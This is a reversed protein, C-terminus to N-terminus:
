TSMTYLTGIDVNTANLTVTKNSASVGGAGFASGLYIRSYFRTETSTDSAHDSVWAGETITLTANAPVDDNEKINYKGLIVYASANGTAEIAGITVDNWNCAIIYIAAGNFRLNELVTEGGLSLLTKSSITFGGRELGNDFGRITIPKSYTPLTTNDLPYTGCVVVTGGVNAIRNVAETLSAVAAAATQGNNTDSGNASLYVTPADTQEVKGNCASCTYYYKEGDYNWEYNNSVHIDSAFADGDKTMDEILKKCDFCYWTYKALTACNAPSTEIWEGDEHTCGIKAGCVDCAEDANADPHEGNVKLCYASYLQVNEAGIIKAAFADAGEVRSDSYVNLTYDNGKFGVALKSLDANGGCMVIDVDFHGTAAVASVAYFDAISDVNGDFVVTAYVNNGGDYNLSTTIFTNTIELIDNENTKGITINITGSYSGSLGRNGGIVARYVGSRITIDTSYGTAPISSNSASGSEFGGVLYIGGGSITIGEGMVLKHGQAAIFPNDSDSFCIHEFVMAGNMIFRTNTYLTGGSVTITNTFSPTIYKGPTTASDLIIVSVDDTNYAAYQ